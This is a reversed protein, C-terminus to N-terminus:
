QRCGPSCKRMLSFFIPGIQNLCTWFCSKSFYKKRTYKARMLSQSVLGATWTSLVATQNWLNLHASAVWFVCWIQKKRFAFSGSAEQPGFDRLISSASFPAARPLPEFNQPSPFRNNTCKYPLSLNKLRKQQRVHSFCLHNIKKPPPPGNSPVSFAHNM